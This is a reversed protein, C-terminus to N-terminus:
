CTILGGNFADVNLYYTTPASINVSPTTVKGCYGSYAGGNGIGFAVNDVDGNKKVGFQVTGIAQFSGFSAYTGGLNASSLLTWAGAGIKYYVEAAESSGGNNGQVQVTVTHTANHNYSYWESMTAPNASSPKSASSVNITAYGGNEATDLSIEANSARGLETNIQSMSIQGSAPMTM